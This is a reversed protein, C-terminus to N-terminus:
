CSGDFCHTKTHFVPQHPILSESFGRHKYICVEFFFFLLSHAYLTGLEQREEKIIIELQSQLSKGKHWMHMRM